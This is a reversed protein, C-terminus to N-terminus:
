NEELLKNIKARDFLRGNTVVSEIKMTQQMDVRPDANLLVLDALKGLHVGNLDTERGLFGRQTESPLPSRRSWSRSNRPALQRGSLRSSILM